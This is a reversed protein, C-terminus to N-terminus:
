AHDNEKGWRPAYLAIGIYVTSDVYEGFCMNLFATYAREYALNPWDWHYPGQRAPILKGCELCRLHM